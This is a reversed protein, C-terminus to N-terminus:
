GVAVTAVARRVVDASRADVLEEGLHVTLHEGAAGPLQQGHALHRAHGDVLGHQEGVRRAALDVHHELELVHLEVLARALPLNMRERQPVELRRESAPLRAEGLHAPVAEVPAVVVLRADDGAVAVVPLVADAGRLQEPGHEVQVAPRRVDVLALLEAHRVEREAPDLVEAVDLREVV